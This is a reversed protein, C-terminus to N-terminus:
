CVLLTCKGTGFERSARWIFMLLAMTTAALCQRFIQWVV